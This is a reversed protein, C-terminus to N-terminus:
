SVGIDYKRFSVHIDYGHIGTGATSGDCPVAGSPLHSVSIDYERFSVHMDYRHIGTGATSGDRRLVGSPLDM